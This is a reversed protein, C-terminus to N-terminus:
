PRVSANVTLPVGAALDLHAIKDTGYTAAGAAAANTAFVEADASATFTITGATRDYVARVDALDDFHVTRDEVYGALGGWDPTLLPVGYYGEYKAMVANLWDFVLNKNGGYNRLNGQHFTHTYVSGSMVHQMAVNSEHDLVQSYTQDVPWYPFRGNPGYYSNYFLTQEAPTTTHYAINTPWDPVVMVSPKLPHRIGCNFCAPRHSAFSMNGHLYKVGLDAAAQLLDANSAALGHDTPPDIDNDPDPHYVGLGSYEGTKLVTPDVTFGLASGITLNDEIEAYSTAYDADNMKPHSFTHNIWTFSSARCRSYATLGDTLLPPLLCLTPVNLGAGDGNYAINLKFGGALPHATRFSNQQQYTSVADSRSMRFGPDSDVTGNALLHDTYSFWDDVDANLYHRQEGLYLGRTAWRFLGFTLLDAQPLYQNSTFTLAARERGDTSTSRVGLVDTGSTILPDAACGAAITGRYLYSLSIPVNVGGRLYDFVGAGAPTLATSIPTDGVGGESGARLCYDEPWTGYATYLSVQRVGYDREYAWLANWEGADLGSLYSGGDEYLLSNSTLLIANYRGTGDAAILDALPETRSHLVDYAAGVRDLTAKWTDEGWDDGDVAIVLARLEVKDTAAAALAEATTAARASRDLKVKGQKKPLPDPIEVKPREVEGRLPAHSHSRDKPASEAPESHAVFLGSVLTVVGALALM